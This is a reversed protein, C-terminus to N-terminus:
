FNGALYASYLAITVLVAAAFLLTVFPGGSARKKTAAVDASGPKVPLMLFTEALTVGCTDQMDGLTLPMAEALGDDISRVMMILDSANAMIDREPTNWAYDVSYKGSSFEQRYISWAQSRPVQRPEWVFTSLLEAPIDLSQALTALDRDLGDLVGPDAGDDFRCRAFQEDHGPVQWCVAVAQHEEDLLAMVCVLLQRGMASTIFASHAVWDAPFDVGQYIEAVVRTRVEIAM